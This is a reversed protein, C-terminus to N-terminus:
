IKLCGLCEMITIEIQKTLGIAFELRSYFEEVEEDDKDATPAYVQIINVIIRSTQIKILIVRDNIPIFDTVSEAVKNTVLVVVGYRHHVDHGGFFYIREEATNVIGSDPWRVESMGLIDIKLRRMEQEANALKGAKFLSRVNWTAIQVIRSYIKLKKLGSATTTPAKNSKTAAYRSRRAAATRVTTQGRAQDSCVGTRHDNGTM